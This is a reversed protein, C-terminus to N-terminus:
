QGIAMLTTAECSNNIVLFDKSGRMPAARIMSDAIMVDLILGSVMSGPFHFIEWSASCFGM